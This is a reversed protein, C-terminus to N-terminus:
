NLDYNPLTELVPKRIKYFLLVKLQQEFKALTLPKIQSYAHNPSDICLLSSIYLSILSPLKVRLSGALVSDFTSPSILFPNFSAILFVLFIGWLMRELM